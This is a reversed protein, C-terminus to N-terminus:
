EAQNKEASNVEAKKPPPTALQGLTGILSTLHILGRVDNAAALKGLGGGGFASSGDPAKKRSYKMIDDEINGLGRDCNDYFNSYADHSKQTTYSSYKHVLSYDDGFVRDLIQHGLEHGMTTQFVHNLNKTTSNIFINVIEKRREQDTENASVPNKLCDGLNYFTIVEKGGSFSRMQVPTKVPILYLSAPMAPQAETDVKVRVRFTEKRPSETNPKNHLRTEIHRTPGPRSWCAEIGVSAMHELKEFDPFIGPDFSKVTECMSKYKAETTPQRVDNVRDFEAMEEKVKKNFFIVQDKIIKDDTELNDYRKEDAAKPPEFNLRATITVQKKPMDGGANIIKGAAVVEGKPEAWGALPPKYIAEPDQWNPDANGNGVRVRTEDFVRLDLWNGDTNAYSFELRGQVMKETANSCCTYRLRLYLKHARLRYTDLIGNNDYGDWQWIHKTDKKKFNIKSVDPYAPRPYPKSLNDSFIVEESDGTADVIEMFANEVDCSKFILMVSLNALMEDDDYPKISSGNYAASTYANSEAAGSPIQKPHDRELVLGLPIIQGAKKKFDKNTPYDPYDGYKKSNHRSISKKVNTSNYKHSANAITMSVTLMPCCDCKATNANNNEENGKVINDTNEGAM